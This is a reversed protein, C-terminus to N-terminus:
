GFRGSVDDHTRPDHCPEGAAALNPVSPSADSPASTTVM